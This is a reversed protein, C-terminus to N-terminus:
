LRAEPAPPLERWHTPPVDFPRFEDALIRGDRFNAIASWDPRTSWGVLIKRWPESIGLEPLREGVPVWASELEKIRARLTANEHEYGAILEDVNRLHIPPNEARLVAVDEADPQKVRGSGDCKPCTELGIENGNGDFYPVAMLGGCHDCTADPQADYAALAETALHKARKCFTCWVGDEQFCVCGM